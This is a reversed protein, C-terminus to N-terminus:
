VQRDTKRTMGSMRGRGVQLPINTKGVARHGMGQSIGCVAFFLVMAASIEHAAETVFLRGHIM